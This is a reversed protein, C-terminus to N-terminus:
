VCRKCQVQHMAHSAGKPVVVSSPANCMGQNRQGSQGCRWLETNHRQRLQRHEAASASGM